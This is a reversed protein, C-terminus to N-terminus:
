SEKKRRVICPGLILLDLWTGIRELRQTVEGQVRAESTQSGVQCSQMSALYTGMM